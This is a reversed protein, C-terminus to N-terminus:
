RRTSYFDGRDQGDIDRDVIVLEVQERRGGFVGCEDGGDGVEVEGYWEVM